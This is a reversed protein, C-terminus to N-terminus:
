LILPGRLLDWRTPRDKFWPPPSGEGFIEARIIGVKVHDLAEGHWWPIIAGWPLEWEPSPIDQDAFFSKAELLEVLCASVEDVHAAPSVFAEVPGEKFSRGWSGREWNFVYIGREKSCDYRANPPNPDWLVQM